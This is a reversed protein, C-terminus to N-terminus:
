KENYFHRRFPKRFSQHCGLCSGQVQAFAEIVARGDKRHAAEGLTRAAQHVQEDYEKFQGVESGIFSLIRMKEFLPPQPHDAVRPAVEAVSEWDERAIGGVIAQMDSGLDKMITRLALSDGRTKTSEEAAAPGLALLWFGVLGIEVMRWHSRM